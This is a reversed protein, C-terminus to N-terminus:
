LGGCGCTEATAQRLMCSSGNWEFGESCYQASDDVHKQQRIPQAAESRSTNGLTGVAFMAVIFFLMCIWKM